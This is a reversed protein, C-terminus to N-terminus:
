WIGRILSVGFISTWTTILLSSGVPIPSGPRATTTGATQLAIKAAVPFRIRRRGIRASSRAYGWARRKNCFLTHRQTGSEDGRNRQRDPNIKKKRPSIKPPQAFVRDLRPLEFIPRAHRCDNRGAIFGFGNGAGNGAQCLLVVRAFEGDDDDIVVAFIVRGRERPLGRSCGAHCPPDRNMSGLVGARSSPSARPKSHLHECRLRLHERM